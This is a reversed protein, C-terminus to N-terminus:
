ALNLTPFDAVDRLTRQRARELANEGIDCYLEIRNGAPDHFYISNTTGHDVARLIDVNHQKLHAHAARLAQVDRLQLAFHHLGPLQEDRDTQPGTVEFLALDHHQVGLSLFLAPPRDLRTVVEFGLIGTYFAVAQALDPVKLVLHGVKLPRIVQAHMM